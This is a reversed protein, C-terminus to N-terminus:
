VEDFGQMENVVYLPRGRVEDYIRSLYEGIIGLTILQVGGLFLVSVLTTAQGEFFGPLFSRTFVVFIGFIASLAAILFGMVTAIQLPLSSFGTIASIALKLMTRLPYGTEGAFRESRVYEVGVQRFGVWSTMGRLFRHHERMSKVMDVVKRDILRFDGADLPIDVSTISQILRYFLAATTKKFWSEGKRESRVAYVVEFGEKWKAILELIVSPPDQLDTDILIVADGSAYDIGATFGNQQGFNKAFDIIKVRSDQQHLNQMIQWSNDVSGDNILILEWPEQLQDMTIKIQKYLEPLNGEENWVPGVISYVINSEAM